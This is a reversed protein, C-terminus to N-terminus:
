LKISNIHKYKNMFINVLVFCPIINIINFKRRTSGEKGALIM